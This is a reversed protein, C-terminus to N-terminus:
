LVAVIHQLDETHALDEQRAKPALDEHPWDDTTPAQFIHTWLLPTPSPDLDPRQFM